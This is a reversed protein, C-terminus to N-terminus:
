RDCTEIAQKDLHVSVSDIFHDLTPDLSVFGALAHRFSTECSASKVGNAACAVFAAAFGLFDGTLQLPLTLQIGIAYGALCGEALAICGVLTANITIWSAAGTTALRELHVIGQGPARSSDVYWTDLMSM